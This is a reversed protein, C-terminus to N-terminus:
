EVVNRYLKEPCKQHFDTANEGSLALGKDLCKLTQANAIGQDDDKIKREHIQAYGLASLQVWQDNLYDANVDNIWQSKCFPTNGTDQAFLTIWTRTKRM